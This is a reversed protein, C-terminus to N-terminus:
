YNLLSGIDTAMTRRLASNDFDRKVIRAPNGQVVVGPPLSKTLVTNPLVTVGDGLKIEGSIVSHPGIWVNRGIEPTGSNLLNQGITVRDHVLTGSGIRRANITIHGRNTLYVGPEILTTALIYSKSLVRSLYCGLRVALMFLLREPGTTRRRRYEHTMRHVALVLLGFSGLLVRTWSIFTAHRGPFRLKHFFCADQRLNQFM